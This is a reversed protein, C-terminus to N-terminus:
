APLVTDVLPCAPDYEVRKLVYINEKDILNRVNTSANHLPIARVYYLFCFILEDVKDTIVMGCEPFDELCQKLCGGESPPTLTENPAYEVEGWPINEGSIITFTCLLARHAQTLLLLWVSSAACVKLPFMILKTEGVEAANPHIKSTSSASLKLLECYGEKSSPLK